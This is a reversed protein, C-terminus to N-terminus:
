LLFKKYREEAERMLKKDFKFKKDFPSADISIEGKKVIKKWNGVIKGNYLIVQYFIGYNTFAKPHHEKDLVATRDKYSILYEDYPPMLHIIDDAQPANSYVRHIYFDVSDTKETVLDCKIFDIAKRAETIPLGSWWVFDNLTAPSHSQFYQGALKALAEDKHLEKARPVREELLAYTHKKDREAGSCLIGDAEAALTIRNIRHENTKIGAKELEQMLEQKTLHKNGELIKELTCNCKALLEEDIELQKDASGWAAKIRKGTLMIMWRIDEPMVLHWTPRLIHTRIIEGRQLAEDVRSLTGEKLRIGLAWKVMRYDQGQIAGMWSVLDKPSKFAPAVLQQSQLRINKIM